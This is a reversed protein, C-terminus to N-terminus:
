ESTKCTEELLSAFKSQFSTALKALRKKDCRERYVIGESCKKDARTCYGQYKKDQQWLVGIEEMPGNNDYVYSKEVYKSLTIFNDQADKVNKLVREVAPKRPTKGELQYRKAREDIRELLKQGDVFPYVLLVVYGHERVKQITRLTWDINGGTTEFVIHYSELLARDLIDESLRDAIRRYGFYVKETQKDRKEEDEINAVREYDEQFGPIKEVIDDVLVPIVHNRKVKFSELIKDVIQSKGSGPPGMTIIFLKQVPDKNAFVSDIIDHGIKESVSYEEM